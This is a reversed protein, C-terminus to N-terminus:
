CGLGGGSQFVETNVLAQYGKNKCLSHNYVGIIVNTITISSEEGFIIKAEDPFFGLIMGREAGLSSFPIIRIRSQMPGERVKDIVGEISKDKYEYFALQAEHTFFERISSFEVVIVPAKSIPDSLANGTDVLATVEATKGDFSIELKCFDRSHTVNTHIWGSGLKLVIYIMATSAILLKLSFHSVSFTLMEGLLDSISTFYFLAMAAGGVAFASLHAFILLKIFEAVKKPKFIFWLCLSLILLAGFFNYLIHLVPVFLILCYFLSAVAGGLMLRLFSVKNKVIRSVIWFIFFDMFANIFFIVDAYITFQM